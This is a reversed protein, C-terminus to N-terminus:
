GDERRIENLTARAGAMDAREGRLWAVLAGRVIQLIARTVVAARDQAFRAGHDAAAVARGIWDPAQPDAGYRSGETATEDEDSQRAAQVDPLTLIRNM